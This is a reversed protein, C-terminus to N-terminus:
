TISLGGCINIAQGTIGRAQNSALYAILSAVEAPEILREQPVSLRTLEMSHEPEIKNLKCWDPDNIQSVAMDTDVWGPCVANVTVGSSALELALSQTLGILGFKSASYAAGFCEGKQGSISSVNILRGWGSKKMLAGFYRALRYPMSLNTEITATWLSADEDSDVSATGYIGANNVLIDIGFAAPLRSEIAALADEDTLDCAIAEARVGGSRLKQALSELPEESRALLACNVGHAALEIAVAYGIGRSAGTILANKGKIGYFGTGSQDKAIAEM